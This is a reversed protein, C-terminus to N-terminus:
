PRATSSDPARGAHARLKQYFRLYLMTNEDDVPAFAAVVRVKDSIWNQWLNPFIFELHFPKDPPDM